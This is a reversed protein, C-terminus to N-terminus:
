KKWGQRELEGAIDPAQWSVPKMIKEHGPVRYKQMNAAHVAKFLPDLDIGMEVATGILFYLEDVIADAVGPLDREDQALFREEAEEGIWDERLEFRADDLLKPAGVGVPQEFKYHFERVMKQWDNM